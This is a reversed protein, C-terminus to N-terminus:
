LINCKGKSINHYKVSVITVRHLICQCDALVEFRGTTWFRAGPVVFYHSHLTNRYKTIYFFQANFCFLLYCSSGTITILLKYYYKLIDYKGTSRTNSYLWFDGQLTRFHMNYLCFFLDHTNINIVYVLGYNKYYRYLASM